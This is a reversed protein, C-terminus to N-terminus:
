ARRRRKPEEAEAEHALRRLERPQLVEVNRGTVAIVGDEQLRTFGRSVSPERRVFFGPQLNLSSLFHDTGIGESEHYAAYYYAGAFIASPGCAQEIVWQVLRNYDIKPRTDAHPFVGHLGGFSRYFNKADFFLKARLM